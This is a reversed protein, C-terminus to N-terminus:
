FFAFNKRHDSFASATFRYGRLGQRAQKRSRGDTAHAPANQEAPPFNEAQRLAFQALNPSAFDGVNKLVREARQIRNICDAPLYFFSQFEVYGRQFGCARPPFAHPLDQRCDANIRIQSVCIRVPKGAPHLLARHNRHCDGAFGFNQHRVLRRRREVDGNLFLDHIQKKRQPFAETHANQQNRVIESDNGLDRITGDHKEASFFDFFTRGHGNNGSRLM